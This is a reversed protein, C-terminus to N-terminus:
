FFRKQHKKFDIDNLITKMLFELSKSCPILGLLNEIANTQIISKYAKFYLYEGLFHGLHQSIKKQEVTSYSNLKLFDFQYDIIEILLHIRRLRKQLLFDQYLDCKRHPNILKSFFYGFCSEFINNIFNEEINFSLQDLSKKQFSYYIHTGAIYSIRNLSYSSCYYTNENPLRFSEGNKLLDWYYEKFHEPLEDIQDEVYDISIHDYLNHDDIVEDNINLGVINKMELVLNSFTEQTDESFFKKGTEIIYEHLDFDPDNYLNEYWYLMSEYKIWPPSSLICFEEENFKFIPAETIQENTKWYVEDLNQHIILQTSNPFLQKVQKPIKDSVIHLEGYLVLCKADKFLYQNKKLHNACFIDRQKLGASTNVALLHVDKEKALQFLVKYHTWPFKWSKSYEISDLFELETLHGELYADICVQKSHHIMELAIVFKSDNEELVKIVRLANRINQDFTHFDGLFIFDSKLVRQKLEELNSLTFDRQAMLSQDNLYENLSDGRDEFSLAKHKLNEYISKRRKLIELKL